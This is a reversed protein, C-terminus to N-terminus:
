LDLGEVTPTSTKRPAPSSTKGAAQSVNRKVQSLSRTLAETPDRGEKMRQLEAELQTMKKMFVQCLFEARHRQRHSFDLLTKLQQLGFARDEHFFYKEILEPNMGPTASDPVPIEEVSDAM